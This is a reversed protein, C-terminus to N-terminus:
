QYPTTDDAIALAPKRGRTCAASAVAQASAMRQLRDMMPQRIHELVENLVNDVYVHINADRSLLPFTSSFRLCGHYSPDYEPAEPICRPDGSALWLRPHSKIPAGPSFALLERLTEPSPSLTVSIHPEVFLMMFYPVLQVVAGITIVFIATLLEHGRPAGRAFLAVLYLAALGMFGASAITAIAQAGSSNIFASM